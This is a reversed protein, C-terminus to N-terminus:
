KTEEREAAEAQSEPEPLPTEDVQDLNPSAVPGRETLVADAGEIRGEGDGQLFETQDSVAGTLEAIQAKVADAADAAEPDRDQAAQEAEEAERAEEAEAVSLGEAAAAAAEEVEGATPEAGEAM